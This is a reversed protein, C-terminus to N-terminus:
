LKYTKSLDKTFSLKALLYDQPLGKGNYELAQGKDDQEQFPMDNACIRSISHSSSVESSHVSTM